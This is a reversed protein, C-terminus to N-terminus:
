RAAKRGPATALTAALMALADRADERGLAAGALTPYIAVVEGDWRLCYGDIHATVDPLRPLPQHNREM